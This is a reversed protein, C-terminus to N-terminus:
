KRFRSEISRAHASLGESEAIRIISNKAKELAKKSYYVYSSKKIFDLVSLGSSFTATGSTPLTHNPGAFYDGVPEPSYPGIFISGAHEIDKFIASPNNTMIELHEPAIRNSIEAAQDISDVLIIAGYNKLSSEIIERRSLTKIEKELAENVKDALTKSNTILMAAAKPDHEAQAMLDCAIYNPDAFEDAIILVESPGAIMDIGVSGSVIKKAIAVYINGPGVIKSVKPISETGYALAAIGQAGGVKYIEDVGVLKAAALIHDNIKGEKNPPTIMVIKKVGAIKAPLANMLVTSPYAARGGPVYIGVSQIPSVKQGIIVGDEKEYEFSDILQKQHYFKINEIAKKLDEILLADVRSYADDIEEQTVKFSMVGVGDFAKTYNFVAEDRFSKVEKVITEVTQTIKIDNISSRLMLKEILDKQNIQNIIKLM